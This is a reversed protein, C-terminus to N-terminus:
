AAKRFLRHSGPLFVFAFGPTYRIAGFPAGYFLNIRFCRVKISLSVETKLQDEPLFGCFFSAM